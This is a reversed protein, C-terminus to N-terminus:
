SKPIDFAPSTPTTIYNGEESPAGFYRLTIRELLFDLLPSSVPSFFLSICSYFLADMTQEEYGNM